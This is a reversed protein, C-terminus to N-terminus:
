RDILLYTKKTAGVFPRSPITAYFKVLV